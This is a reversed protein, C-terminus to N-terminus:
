GLITLTVSVAVDSIVENDDDVLFYRVVANYVGAGLNVDLAFNEIMGGLPIFPSSYVLEGTERLNVDFYVTRSNRELNRVRANRSPTQATEFEWNTNMSITYQADPNPEGPAHSTEDANEPTVLIGRGSMATRRDEIIVSDDEKPWMFYTITSALALVLAIIVWHLPKLKRKKKDEAIEDTKEEPNQESGEKKKIDKAM